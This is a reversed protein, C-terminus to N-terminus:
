GPERTPTPISESLLRRAAEASIGLAAGIDAAKLGSRQLDTAALRLGEPDTPRHAIRAHDTLLGYNIRTMVKGPVTEAPDPTRDSIRPRISGESKRVKVSPGFGSSDSGNPSESWPNRTM